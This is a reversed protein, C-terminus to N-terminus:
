RGRTRDRLRCGKIFLRGDQTVLLDEQLPVDLMCRNIQFTRPQDVVASADALAAACTPCAVEEMSAQVNQGPTFTATLTRTHLTTADLTTLAEAQAGSTSIHVSPWISLKLESDVKTASCGVVVVGAGEPVNEFMDIATDWVSVPVKGGNEDVFTAESVRRRAGAKDIPKAPTKGLYKGCFDFTKNLSKASGSDKLIKILDTIDISV